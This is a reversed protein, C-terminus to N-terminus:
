EVFFGTPRFQAPMYIDSKHVSKGHQWSEQYFPIIRLWPVIQGDRLVHQESSGGDKQYDLTIQKFHLTNFYAYKVCLM